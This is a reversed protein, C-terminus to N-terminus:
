SFIHFPVPWLHCCSAHTGLAAFVGEYYTIFCDRLLGPTAWLTGPPKPEWIKHCKACSPQLTMLRECRGGKDWSFNRTGVKVLTQTSGLAMTRDSPIHRQGDTVELNFVLRYVSNFFFFHICHFHFFHPTSFTLTVGSLTWRPHYYNRPEM